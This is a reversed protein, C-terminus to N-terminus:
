LGRIHEKLPSFKELFGYKKRKVAEQYFCKLIKLVRRMTIQHKKAVQKRAACASLGQDRLIFYDDVVAQNRLEIAHRAASMFKDNPGRVLWPVDYLPYNSM